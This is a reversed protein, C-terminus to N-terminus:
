RFSCECWEMLLWLLLFPLPLELDAEEWMGISACSPVPEGRPPGKGAVKRRQGWMGQPREHLM